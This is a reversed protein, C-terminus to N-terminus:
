TLPSAHGRKRPLRRADAQGVRKLMRRVTSVSIRGLDQDLSPSLSLEGHGALRRAKWVVNPQLREAMIYDLSKAIM